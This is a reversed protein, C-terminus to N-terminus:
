ALATAFGFNEVRQSGVVIRAGAVVAALTLLWRMPLVTAGVLLPVLLMPAAFVDPLSLVLVVILVIAFTLVGFNFATSRGLRLRTRLWNSRVRTTVTVPAGRPLPRGRRSGLRLDAQPPGSSPTKHM